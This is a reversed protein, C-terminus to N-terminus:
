HTVITWDSPATALSSGASLYAAGTIQFGNMQWEALQGGPTQWLLDAKGNGFLDATGALTWGAPANVQTSGQMLYSAATVQYGNMEWIALAGSDTEWLLDDFGNGLFDAASILHWDTGPANLQTSGSKLYSAGTIQYGNLRWIALAGEDTRWLLDDEGTGFFDGSAIIHWDTGPAGVVTSGIETYNAGTIATGNMQWIAPSGSGNQWLIDNDGTGFFNGAGLITWGAAPVGVTSGNITTYGASQIQTGNMQWIAVQGATTQWLIDTKSGGYFNGTDDVINWGAAPVGVTAGNSSTYAAAIVQSGNMEWIPVSNDQTSFLLDNLGDGNFDASQYASTSTLVPTPAPTPTPTAAQGGWLSSDAAEWTQIQSLDSSTIQVASGTSSVVGVVYPLNNAEVWVPGGSNGHATTGSPYDLLPYTPDKSVSTTTNQQLGDTTDPYGTINVSGGSFNTEIGFWSSFTAAVDIVAYDTASQSPDINSETYNVEFNHWTEATNLPSDSGPPNPIGNASYAPYIYVNGAEANYPSDWLVHSATLITHPGIIVGSAQAFDPDSSNTTELLVVDNFPYTSVSYSAPANGSSGSGSDTDLTPAFAASLPASAPSGGDGEAAANGTAFPAAGEQASADAADAEAAEAPAAEAPAAGAGSAAANSALHTTAAASGALALRAAALDTAPEAGGAGAVADPDAVSSGRAVADADALVLDALAGVGGPIAGPTHGPDALATEDGAPPLAAM